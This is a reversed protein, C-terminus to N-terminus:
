TLLGSLTEESLPKGNLIQGIHTVHYGRGKCRVEMLRKLIPIRSRAFPSNMGTRNAPPVFGDLESYEAKPHAMSLALLVCLGQYEEKSDFYLQGAFLNLETRVHAPTSWQEEPMEPISCFTLGSFSRMSPTVRPAYVHLRVKNSQRILPLLENAEYPSIVVVITDKGSGSSIIWNVPRLYETLGMGDSDLITTTFDTTALPTPSWEATSDLTKVMNIPALLPSIHMSSRRLKGTDVFERIAEHISHQASQVKPAQPPRHEIATSHGPDLEHNVEHEQEEAMRSDVMNTVGLREIRKSLSPISSISAFVKAAPAIWYMEELTRSEPQLWANRLIELDGSSRYEKYAAFRKDHDLGQQAWYLLHHSIDECTGHIAWRIVDIVRIRGEPALGGSILSRISRDVVGPAFFKISHGKGLQRMRMCGVDSDNKKREVFCMPRGQVLRDKTVKPGLTVAARMGQPLKLDTGRTHVDDLYVVCKELQRKFPSLIFPEIIGDPTVVTLHDTDDFFVAASVDPRLSLWYRALEENQLELMQAGIDLLARIEPEQNVLRKLFSTALEREGNEVETCEYHDNEPRLLNRLVLANTGHVVDPDKQSISTPLLYRIDNTGSFGTTVNKKHEVLDWGSTPLKSSFERAAQPFVVQSLYFDVMAKNRSFLPVLLEDVQKENEMNVGKLQRLEAPLDQGSEVWHDYEM